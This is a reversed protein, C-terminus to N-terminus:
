SKRRASTALLIGGLILVASVVLRTSITESLFLVGGGAALLPVALQVISARTASLGRLAAYWIVYGLGSAIAGSAVALAVGFPTAHARGFAFASAALALPLAAAFNFATAAIPDAAQKGALSYLGWAFGAALMFVAGLPDPSALDPAALVVLGGLALGLGLWELPRPREGRALGVGIMTAQVAGFLLLAGTGASLSRYAFSFLIAYAFLAGASAIWGRAPRASRGRTALLVLALAAAGSGLRITTFSAADIAQSGLALRCLLSNASFAVLAATTLVLTRM